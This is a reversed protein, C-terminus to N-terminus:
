FKTEFLGTFAFNKYLPCIHIANVIGDARSRQKNSDFYALCVPFRTDPMHVIQTLYVKQSNHNLRVSLRMKIKM